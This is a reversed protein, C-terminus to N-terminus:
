KGEGEDQQLSTLEKILNKLEHIKRVDNPDRYFINKNEKEVKLLKQLENIKKNKDEIEARLEQIQHFRDRMKKSMRNLEDTMQSLRRFIFASDGRDTRVVKGIMETRLREQVEAMPFNIVVYRTRLKGFQKVDSEVHWGMVGVDVLQNYVYDHNAVRWFKAKQESTKVKNLVERRLQTVTRANTSINLANLGALLEHQQLENVSDRWNRLANAVFGDWFEPEHKKFYDFRNAHAEKLLRSTEADHTRDYNIAVETLPTNSLTEKYLLTKPPFPTSCSKCTIDRIEHNVKDMEKEVDKYPKLGYDHTLVENYGNCRPCRGTFYVKIHVKKNMMKREVKRIRKRGM